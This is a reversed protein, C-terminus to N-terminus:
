LTDAPMLTDAAESGRAAVDALGPYYDIMADIILQVEASDVQNDEPVSQITQFFVGLRQLDLTDTQMKAMFSDIVRNFRTTDVGPPPDVALEQKIENIMYVASSKSFDDFYVYIFIAAVIILVVVVGLAILGILCGRSMGQKRPPAQPPVNPQQEM